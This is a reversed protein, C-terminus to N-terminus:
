SRCSAPHVQFHVNPHCIPTKFKIDPPVYSYRNDSVNIELLWEGEELTLRPCFVVTASVLAQVKM